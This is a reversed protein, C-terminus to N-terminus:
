SIQIEMPSYFFYNIHYSEKMSHSSFMNEKPKAKINNIGIPANIINKQFVINQNTPPKSLTLFGNQLILAPPNTTRVM